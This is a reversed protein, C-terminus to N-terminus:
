GKVAGETLGKVFWKNFFVVLLIAPLIVLSAAANMQGWEMGFERIFGTVMIPLTAAKSRSLILSYFFNNWSGLFSIIYVATVGPAAAPLVIKFFAGFRGCGDIMAADELTVPINKFFGWMIWVALPLMLSTHTLILVLHTDLLRLRVMIFFFPIAILAPPFMRTLLLSYAFYGTKALKMRAFSYGSLSAVFVSLTASCLGVIASNLFFHFFNAEQVVNTYHSLTPRFVFKPPMSLTDVVSKFSSLVSWIVPFIIFILLILTASFRLFCKIKKQSSQM